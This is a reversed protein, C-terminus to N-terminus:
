CDYGIAFHGQDQLVLGIVDIEGDGVSVTLITVIYLHLSNVSVLDLM